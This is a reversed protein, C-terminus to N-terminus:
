DWEEHLVILELWSVNEIQYIEEAVEKHVKKAKSGAIEWELM